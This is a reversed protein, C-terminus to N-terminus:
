RGDVVQDPEVDIGVVLSAAPARVIGADDRSCRHAVGDIEVLHDGGQVSSVVTFTTGGLSLRSQGRGLREIDVDVASGDLEVGYRTAGLRRVILRYSQGGLRLEVERGVSTDAHARGRSAAGLFSERDIM